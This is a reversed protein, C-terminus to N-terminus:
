PWRLVDESHGLWTGKKWWPREPLFLPLLAEKAALLCDGLSAPPQYM